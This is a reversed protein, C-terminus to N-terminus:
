LKKVEAEETIGAEEVLKGGFSEVLGPKKELMAGLEEQSPHLVCARLLRETARPKTKESAILDRFMNMEATGPAKAVVEYGGASLLMIDRGPNAAKAKDIAEQPVTSIKINM